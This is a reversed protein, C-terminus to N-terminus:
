AVALVLVHVVQDVLGDVMAAQGAFALERDARVHLRAAVGAILPGPPDLDQRLVQAVPRDVLDEVAGHALQTLRDEVEMRVHELLRPELSRQAGNGVLM